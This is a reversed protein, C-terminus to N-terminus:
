DRGASSGNHTEECVEERGAEMEAAGREKLWQAEVGDGIHAVNGGPVAVEFVPTEGPGVTRGDQSVFEDEPASDDVHMLRGPDPCLCAPPIRMLELRTHLFVMQQDKRVKPCRSVGRALM